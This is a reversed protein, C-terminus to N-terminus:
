VQTSPVEDEGRRSVVSREVDDVKVLSPEERGAKHGEDEVISTEPGRREADSLINDTEDLGVLVVKM